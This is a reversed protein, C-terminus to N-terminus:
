VATASIVLTLTGNQQGKQLLQVDQTQPHNNPGLVLRTRVVDQPVKLVLPFEQGAEPLQDVQIELDAVGILTNNDDGAKTLDGTMKDVGFGAIAGLVSGLGGTVASFGATLITALLGLFFKSAGGSADLKTVAVHLVTRDLVEERFLLPDFFPDPQESDLLTAPTKNVLDYQKVTLLSPAGSRPYKLSATLANNKLGKDDDHAFNEGDFNGNVDVKLEKIRITVLKKSM